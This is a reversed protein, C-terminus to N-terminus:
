RPVDETERERDNPLGGMFAEKDRSFAERVTALAEMKWQKGQEGMRRSVEDIVLWIADGSIFYKPMAQLMLRCQRDLLKELLVPPIPPPINQRDSNLSSCCGAGVSLEQRYRM